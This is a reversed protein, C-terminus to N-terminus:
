GDVHNAGEALTALADRAIKGARWWTDLQAFIPDYANDPKKPKEPQQRAIREPAGRAAELQRTLTDNAARLDALAQATAIPDNQPTM